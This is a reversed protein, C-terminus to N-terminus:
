AASLKDAHARLRALTDNIGHRYAEDNDDIADAAVAANAAFERMENAVFGRVRDAERTFIRRTAKDAHYLDIVGPGAQVALAEAIHDTRTETSM